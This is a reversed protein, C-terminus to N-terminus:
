VSPANGHYGRAMWITNRATDIWYMDHRWMKFFPDYHVGSGDPETPDMGYQKLEQVEKEHLDFLM